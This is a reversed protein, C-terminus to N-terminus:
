LATHQRRMLVTKRVAADADHAGTVAAVLKIRSCDGIAQSIDYERMELSAANERPMARVVM